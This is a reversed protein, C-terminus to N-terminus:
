DCWQMECSRRLLARVAPACSTIPRLRPPFLIRDNWFNWNSQFHGLAACPQIVLLSCRKQTCKSIKGFVNPQIVNPQSSLQAFTSSDIEVWYRKMCLDNMWVYGIWKFEAIQILGLEEWPINGLNRFWERFGRALFWNRRYAKDVM